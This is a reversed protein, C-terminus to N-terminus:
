ENTAKCAEQKGFHSKQPPRTPAEIFFKRPESDNAMNEPGRMFYATIRGSNHLLIILFRSYLASNSKSNRSNVMLGIDELYNYPCLLVESEGM